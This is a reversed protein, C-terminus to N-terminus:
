HRTQTEAARNAHIGALYICFYVGINERAWANTNNFRLLLYARVCASVCGVDHSTTARVAARAAYKIIEVKIIPEWMVRARHECRSLVAVAWWGGRCRKSPRAPKPLSKSVNAVAARVRMRSVRDGAGSCASVVRCKAPPPPPACAGAGAGLALWGFQESCM